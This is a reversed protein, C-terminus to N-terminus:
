SWNYIGETVVWDQAESMFIPTWFYVKKVYSYFIISAITVTSSYVSLRSVWSYEDVTFALTWFSIFLACDFVENMSSEFYRWCFLNELIRDSFEFLNEYVITIGVSAIVFDIAFIDCFLRSLLYVMCILIRISVTRVLWWSVWLRNGLKKFNEIFVLIWVRVFNVFTYHM